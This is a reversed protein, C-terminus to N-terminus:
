TGWMPGKTLCTITIPPNRCNPPPKWADTIQPATHTHTHSHAHTHSWPWHSHGIANGYDVQNPMTCDNRVTITLEEEQLRFLCSFIFCRM